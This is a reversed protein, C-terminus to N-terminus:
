VTIPRWTLTTHTVTHRLRQASLPIALLLLAALVALGRVTKARISRHVIM